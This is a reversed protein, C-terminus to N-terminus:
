KWGMKLESLLVLKVYPACKKDTAVLINGEVQMYKLKHYHSFIAKFKEGYEKSNWMVPEGFKFSM